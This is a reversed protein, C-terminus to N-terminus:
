SIAAFAKFLALLAADPLDLDVHHQKQTTSIQNGVSRALVMEPSFFHDSSQNSAKGLM